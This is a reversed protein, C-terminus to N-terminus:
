FGLATFSSSIALYPCANLSLATVRNNVGSLAHTPVTERSNHM